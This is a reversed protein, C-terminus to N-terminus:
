SKSRIPITTSWAARPAKPTIQLGLNMLDGGHAPQSFTFTNGKGGTPITAAQAGSGLDIKVADLPIETEVADGNDDNAAATRISRVAMRQAPFNIIPRAFNSRSVRCFAYYGERANSTSRHLPPCGARYAALTAIRRQRVPDLLRRALQQMWWGPSFPTEVDLSM